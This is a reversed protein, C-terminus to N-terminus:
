SRPFSAYPPGRSAATLPETPSQRAPAASFQEPAMGPPCLVAPSSGVASLLSEFDAHFACLNSHFSKHDGAHQSQLPEHDLAHAAQHAVAVHQGFLLLVCLALRFIARKPRSMPGDYLM